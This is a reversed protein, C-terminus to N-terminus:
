GLGLDDPPPEALTFRFADDTEVVSEYQLGSETIRREQQDLVAKWRDIFDRKSRRDERIVTNEKEFRDLMEILLNLNESVPASDSFQAPEWIARYPMARDKQQDHDLQHPAHIAVVTLIGSSTDDRICIFRLSDGMVRFTTQDNHDREIFVESRSLGGLQERVVEAASSFADSQIYGADRLNGIATRTLVLPLMPLVEVQRTIGELTSVLQSSSYERQDPEEDLMRRLVARIQAQGSIYNDVM